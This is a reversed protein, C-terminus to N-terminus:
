ADPATDSADAPSPVASLAYVKVTTTGAKELAKELAARAAMNKERREDAAEAMKERATRHDPVSDLGYGYAAGHAGALQASVDAAALTEVERGIEVTLQPNAELAKEIALERELEAAADLPAAKAAAAGRRAAASGLRARQEAHVSQVSKPAAYSKEFAQFDIMDDRTPHTSVRLREHQGLASSHGRGHPLASLAERTGASIATSGYIDMESAACVAVGWRQSRACTHTGWGPDVVFAPPTHVPCSCDAPEDINGFAHARPAIFGALLAALLALRFRSGYVPTM